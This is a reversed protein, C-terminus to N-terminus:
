EAKWLAVVPHLQINYYLEDDDHVLLSRVTRYNGQRFFIEAMYPAVVGYQTPDTELVFAFERQAAEDMGKFLYVRGLLMHIPINEYEHKLVFDIFRMAEDILFKQLTDDALEFYVLDWYLRALERAAKLRVQLNDSKEFIKQYRHIEGNIRKEMRDIISFSFLRVEDEKDSLAQKIISLHTKNIQSELASLAHIKVNSPMFKQKMLVSMAGEGFSRRAVPFSMVLEDLDINSTGGRIVEMKSKRLMYAIVASVPVGFLPLSVGMLFFFAAVSRGQRRYVRGITLWAVLASFFGSLLLTLAVWFWTDTM